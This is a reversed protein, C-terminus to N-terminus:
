LAFFNGRWAQGHAYAELRRQQPATNWGLKKAKVIARKQWDQADDFKGLAALAAAHVEYVTPNAPEYKQVDEILDVARMGDPQVDGPGAALMAALYFKASVDGNSAIARELLAHANPFDPAGQTGLLAELALAVQADASGHDSAMNLWRLGKAREQAMPNQMRGLGLLFQALPIGAQAPELNWSAYPKPDTVLDPRGFLMFGFMVQSQPDGHQAKTHLNEIERRLAEENQGGRVMFKVKTRLRCPTSHDPSLFTFTSAQLAQRAADDFSRDPYSYWVHIHHARGDPMVLLEVMVTGSKGARIASDPYYDDPYAPKLFRCREESAEPEAPLSDPLLTKQLSERGFRGVLEQVRARGAANMHPELQDIINHSAEGGGNSLAAMAWAFGLVNDRKVGEGNVYMVALSEQAMPQGIEALERYLAVAHEFDKKAYAANASYLDAHAVPLLFMALGLGRLFGERLRTV